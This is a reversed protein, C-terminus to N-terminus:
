RYLLINNIFLTKNTFFFRTVWTFNTEFVLFFLWNKKSSQYKKFKPQQPSLAYFVSKKCYVPKLSLLLMARLVTESCLYVKLFLLTKWTDCLIYFRLRLLLMCVSFFLEQLQYKQLNTPRKKESLTPFRMANKKQKLRKQMELPLFVFYVSSTLSLNLKRSTSLQNTTVFHLNVIFFPLKLINTTNGGIKTTSM